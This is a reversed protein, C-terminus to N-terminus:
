NLVFSRERAMPWRAVERAQFEGAMALNDERRAPRVREVVAWGEEARRGQFAGEPRLNDPQRALLPRHQLSPGEPRRRDVGERSGERERKEREQELKARLSQTFGSDEVGGSGGERRRGM